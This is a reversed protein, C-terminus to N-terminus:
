AGFGSDRRRAEALSSEYEEQSILQENRRGENDFTSGLLKARERRNAELVAQIRLGHDSDDFRVNGSALADAARAPDVRQLREYDAWGLRDDAQQERAEARGDRLGLEYDSLTEFEDDAM